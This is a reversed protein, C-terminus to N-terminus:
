RQTVGTRALSRQRIQHSHAYVNCTRTNEQSRDVPRMEPKYDDIGISLQDFAQLRLKPSGSDDLGITQPQFNSAVASRIDTEFIRRKVSREV